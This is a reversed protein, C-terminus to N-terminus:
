RLFFVGVNAITVSQSFSNRKLHSIDYHLSDIKLAALEDTQAITVNHLPQLLTVPLITHIMPLDEAIHSVIEPALGEFPQQLDHELKAPSSIPRNGQIRVPSRTTVMLRCTARYQGLYLFNLVGEGLLTVTSFRTMDLKTRAQVM